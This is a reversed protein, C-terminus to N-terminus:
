GAEKTLGARLERIIEHPDSTDPGCLVDLAKDLAIGDASEGIEEDSDDLIHFAYHAIDLLATFQEASCRAVPPESAARENFAKAITEFELKWHAESQQLREIEAKYQAAVEAREECNQCIKPDMDHMCVEKSSRQTMAANGESEDCRFVKQV